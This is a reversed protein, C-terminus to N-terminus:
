GVLFRAARFGDFGDAPEDDEDEDDAVLARAPPAVMADDLEDDTIEDPRVIRRLSGNRMIAIRDCWGRLEAPDSSILIASGGEATHEFLMQYLDQRSRVDLGRTPHNLILVEPAERLWSRLAVKQRDGGSLNGIQDRASTARINMTQIVSIIERLAEVESRDAEGKDQPLLSRAITSTDAFRFSEEVSFYAIGLDEAGAALNRPTGGVVVEGSLNDGARGSLAEALHHMGGKRAPGTLGLVEGRRLEFDIDDLDEDSLGRVALAVEERPHESRDALAVQERTLLLAAMEDVSTTEADVVRFVSGEKLVAVRSAVRKMESLRHTIYIASVGRENMGSLVDHLDDIERRNFLAGVEDMLIVKAGEIAMRAMEVLVQELGSLSGIRADVSLGFGHQAILEAAEERLEEHPRGSRRGTRFVAQAVTLRPNVKLDQRIVGVGRSMAESQSNATYPEGDLLIQGGDPQYAGSLLNMLTTKGVGNEGILGLVEGRNLELTVNRLVPRGGHRKSVGDLRLLHDM